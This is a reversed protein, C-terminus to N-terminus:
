VVLAILIVLAILVVLIILAMLIVLVVLAVLLLYILLIAILDGALSVLLGRRVIRYAWAAWASNFWFSFVFASGNFSGIKNLKLSYVSPTYGITFLLDM